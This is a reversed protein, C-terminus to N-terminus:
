DRCANIPTFNFGIFCTTSFVLVINKGKEKEVRLINELDEICM